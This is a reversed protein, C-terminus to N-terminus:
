DSLVSSEPQALYQTMDSEWTDRTITKKESSRVSCEFGHEEADFSKLPFTDKSVKDAFREFAARFDDWSDAEITATVAIRRRPKPLRKRGTRGNYLFFAGSPEGFKQKYLRTKGETRESSLVGILLPLGLTDSTHKAFEMLRAARGGKVRRFDPHIFVSKEELFSEESYWHKSIHLLVGGSLTGDPEEVVGIVGGDLMLAPYVAHVLKIPDAGLFGNDEVAAMCLAMVPDLDDLNAVRVTIAPAEKTIADSEITM